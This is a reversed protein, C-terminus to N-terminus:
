RAGYVPQGGLYTALVQTDALEDLPCSVPDRDVVTLDARYGPALMGIGEWDLVRAAERTWMELAQARSVV